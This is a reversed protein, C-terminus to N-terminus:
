SQPYVEIGRSLSLEAGAMLTAIGQALTAHVLAATPYAADEVDNNWDALLDLAQSVHDGYSERLQDLNM